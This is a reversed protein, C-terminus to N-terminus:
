AVHASAAAAARAFKGAPDLEETRSHHIGGHVSKHSVVCLTEGSERKPHAHITQRHETVPDRIQLRKELIVNAEQALKWSSRFM